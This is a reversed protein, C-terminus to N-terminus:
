KLASNIQELLFEAREEVTMPPVEVLIYGLGQYIRRLRAGFAKAEEYPITRESDTTYIEPWDAMMFVTKNYGYIQAARQVFQAEINLFESYALMDPVGRDFVIPGKQSDSDYEQYTHIMRSLALEVFLKPDREIVGNGDFSRQEILIQRTAESSIQAGKAQLATCLTTKGSGMAGTLIFYNPKEKRMFM